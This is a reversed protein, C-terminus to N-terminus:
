KLNQVKPEQRIVGQYLDEALLAAVDIGAVAPHLLDRLSAVRPNTDGLCSIAKSLDLGSTFDDTRGLTTKDTGNRAGHNWHRCVFSNRERWVRYITEGLASITQHRYGLLVARPIATRTRRYLFCLLEDVVIQQDPLVPELM